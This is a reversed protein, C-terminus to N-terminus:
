PEGRTQFGPPQMCHNARGNQRRTLRLCQTISAPASFAAPSHSSLPAGWMLQKHNTPKGPPESTLADAELAPSGPKTGPDPLDRSFSIAIWELIRAQLIGHVSFHMPDCLTPCSQAVEGEAEGEADLSWLAKLNEGTDKLGPPPIAGQSEATAQARRNKAASSDTAETKEKRQPGTPSLWRSEALVLRQGGKRLNGQSTGM